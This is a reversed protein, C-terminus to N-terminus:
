KDEGLAEKIPDPQATGCFTEILLILKKGADTKLARYQGGDTLLSVKKTEVKKDKEPLVLHAVYSKSPPNFQVYTRIEFNKNDKSDEDAQKILESVKEWNIKAKKSTLQCTTILGLNGDKGIERELLPGKYTAEQAMVSTALCLGLFLAKKM